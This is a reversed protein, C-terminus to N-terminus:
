GSSDDLREGLPPPLLPSASEDDEAEIGGKVQGKAASSPRKLQGLGAEWGSEWDEGEGNDGHDENSEEKEDRVSAKRDAAAALAQAQAQAQAQARETGASTRKTGSHTRTSGLKVGSVGREAAAQLLASGFLRSVGGRKQGGAAAGGTAIKVSATSSPEQTNSPPSPLSSLQAAQMARTSATRKEVQRFLEESEIIDGNSLKSEALAILDELPMEADDSM